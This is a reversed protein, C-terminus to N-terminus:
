RVFYVLVVHGGEHRDDLDFRKERIPFDVLGVSDLIRNRHFGVVRVVRVDNREVHGENSRGAVEFLEANEELEKTLNTFSPLPLLRWRWQEM